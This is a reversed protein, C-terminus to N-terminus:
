KKVFKVQKKAKLVKPFQPLLDQNKTLRMEIDEKNWWDTWVGKLKLSELKETLPASIQSSVALFFGNSNHTEVTDRIDLVHSKGITNKSAKCQGVVKILVTPPQVKSAVTSDRVYWEILLDRKKDGQNIPAPRRVSKVNPERELLSKILLEFQDPCVKEEWEFLPIPFLLESERNHRERLIEREIKFEGLGSLRGLAIVYPSEVLIVMNELPILDIKDSEVSTLSKILGKFEDNVKNEVFNKVEGDIILDGHIGEVIEIKRKSRAQIMSIYNSLEKSKVITIENEIDYIYEWNPRKRGGYNKFNSGNYIEHIANMFDKSIEYERDTTVNDKKLCENCTCGAFEWFIERWIVVIGIIKSIADKIQEISVLGLFDPTQEPMIYRGWIEDEIVPHGIDYLSSSIGNVRLFSAFMLSLIVHADTRDGHYIVDYTRQQFYFSLNQEKKIQIFLTIGSANDTFIRFSEDGKSELHLSYSECLKKILKNLEM